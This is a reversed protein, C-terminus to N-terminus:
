YIWLSDVASINVWMMDQGFLRMQEKQNPDHLESHTRLDYLYDTDTTTNYCYFLSDSVVGLHDNNVCLVYDKKLAFVDNGMGTNVYPLGMLSLITPAMDTQSCVQNFQQPMPVLDTKLFCAIHNHSICMDYSNNKDPAGHDGILLYIADKGWETQEARQMFSQLADDAFRVGAEEASMGTLYYRDPVVVPGHNSVTLFLAFFPTTDQRNNLHNIGWDFLYQDDVGFNNVRKEKPFDCESYIENIGNALFATSMNDYCPNGTIFAMTSYGADHLVSPLGAYRVAQAPMTTQAFRPLYGFLTGTLGNNTHVGTSYCRSFTIASDRLSRLYPTLPEGQFTRDLNHYAMSEMLILVVNRKNVTDKGVVERRMPKSQPTYHLYHQVYGLANSCTVDCLLPPLPQQKEDVSKLINFTPNIGLRNYFPSACFYAHRLKLPDSQVSGRMGLFCLGGLLLIVLIGIIYKRRM